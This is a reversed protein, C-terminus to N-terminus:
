LCNVSGCISSEKTSPVGKWSFSTFRYVLLSGTGMCICQTLFNFPGYLHHIKLQRRIGLSNHHAM